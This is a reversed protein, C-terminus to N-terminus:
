IVGTLLLAEIKEQNERRLPVLPLRCEGAPFGARNMMAKIPSPNTEIQSLAIYPYLEQFLSLSKEDVLAKMKKPFLNSMVSILGKGGISFYPLAMLDDGALFLFDPLANIIAAGYSISGSADKLGVITEIESLRRVTEVEISVGSRGPHNYMIIPLSSAEAVASFHRFIGEQTPRCYYPAMVLLADAGAHESEYAKLCTRETSADSCSILIPVKGKAETITIDMVRRRENEQLTNGEGTSGLVLLADVGEEIQFWINERFGQEDLSGEKFPTVLATTLGSFQM